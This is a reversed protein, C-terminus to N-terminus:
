FTPIPQPLVPEARWHTSATRTLDTLTPLVGTGPNVVFTATAEYLPRQFYSFALGAGASVLAMAAVVWWTERLIRLYYQIQM